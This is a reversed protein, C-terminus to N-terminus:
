EYELVCVIGGGATNVGQGEDKSPYSSADNVEGLRSEHIQDICTGCVWTVESRLVLSKEQEQGEVM